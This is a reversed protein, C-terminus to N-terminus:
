NTAPNAGKAALGAKQMRPRTVLVAARGARDPWFKELSNASRLFKHVLDQRRRLLAQLLTRASSAELEKKSRYKDFARLLVEADQVDGMLTQYGHMERLRVPTLSPVFHALTEMMYRFNKFAVRTCHITKTDRPDIREKLQQTRSFAREVAALLLQGAAKAPYRRRAAEVEERCSEILKGFRGTRLKKVEKRTTRALREERKKLYGKFSRASSFSRELRRLTLLQVQTDRLEDFTDLHQKLLRGIKKVRALPLFPALLEVVSILRRAAVRSDHVAKESFKKQCRRLQKRYQRGQSKLLWSLRRLSDSPLVATYPEGNHAARADTRHTPEVSKM